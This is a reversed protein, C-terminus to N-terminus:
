HDGWISQHSDPTTTNIVASNFLGEQMGLVVNLMNELMSQASLSNSHGHIVRRRIEPLPGDKININDLGRRVADCDRYAFRAKDRVKEINGALRQLNSKVLRELNQKQKNAYVAYILGAAGFATGIYGIINEM